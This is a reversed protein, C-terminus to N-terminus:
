SATESDLYVMCNLNFNLNIFLLNLIFQLAFFNMNLLHKEIKFCIILSLVYPTNRVFFSHTFPNFHSFHILLTLTNINYSNTIHCLSMCGLITVWEHEVNVWGLACVCECM